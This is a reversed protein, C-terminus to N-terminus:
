FLYEMMEFPLSGEDELWVSYHGRHLFGNRSYLNHAPLNGEILNLRISDAKKEQIMAMLGQLFADALGRGRLDPDLGFLHICWANQGQWNVQEEGELAQNVLASGCLQGNHEFLWLEQNNLAQQLSDFSPHVGWTWLPFNTRKDLNAIIKQYLDCVQNFDSPEAQRITLSDNSNM